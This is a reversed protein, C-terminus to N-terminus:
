RKFTLDRLKAFPSAPDAPPAERRPRAPRRRPPRAVRPQFSAIGGEESREFGLCDLLLQVSAADGGAAQELQPTVVFPGQQALRRALEAARELADARIVLAESGRQLLRYGVARWFDEPSEGALRQALLDPAPRPPAPLGRKLSWLLARLATARPSFLGPLYLSEEGFAVGLATLQKKEGRSLAAHTASRDRPLCGLAEVLQFALGRAMAPLPAAALRALVGLRQGVHKEVWRALRKRIRERQAGDLFDSALTEVRPTLATDGAALRAVPQGRWLLRGNETMQFSSDQDQELALVRRPIADALARRVATAAMRRDEGEIAPDLDLHFGELRGVVHGEVMVAGDGKVSGILRDGDALRRAFLAARRDVFRETLAEHLADSLRDEIARAAEQWHQPDDLWDARHAIYTWTRIQALRQTLQDIDGESRDIRAIQRAVWPEPLVRRDHVLHRFVQGVLHAHHDSLTKGFDPIQCCDWLLRMAARGRAMAKVEPDAALIALTQHDVAERARRLYPSPPRADLSRLLAEPSALDLARSRWHFTELPPFRHEEVLEVLEPDIEGQDNTTGFTGDNMHRGARGAIQGLEAATLRRPRRGDFKVLGAFAVHDLALNLGMGIADTAVLYDVQGEEFLAVQANRTRPSLAGLVVATGGRQRRILEALAYVEAASFAIVASRPPLRTLKRPGTYTLTSFRPRALIEAQPVLQKLLRRATDSGLFATEELGRAHLLRDTFIHGREPDGALQIEDVALFAVPRDLPMSEVTCCFWRAGPPVIKEEGTVLAVQHYGKLRAIREYNERALLRLPFGIIGSAHGLMREIAYHTKGTNTPGLVALVRGSGAISGGQERREAQV